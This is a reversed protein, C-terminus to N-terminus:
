TACKRIWKMHNLQLLLSLSPSLSFLPTYQFLSIKIETPMFTSHTISIMTFVQPRRSKYLFDHLAAIFMHVHWRYQRCLLLLVCLWTYQMLVPVLVHSCALLWTARMVLARIQYYCEVSKTTLMHVKQCLM